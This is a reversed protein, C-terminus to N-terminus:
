ISKPLSSSGVKLPLTHSRQEWRSTKLHCTDHKKFVPGIPTFYVFLYIIGWLTKWKFLVRVNKKKKKWKVLFAMFLPFFGCMEDRVIRTLTKLYMSSADCVDNKPLKPDYYAENVSSLEHSSSTTPHGDSLLRPSSKGPILWVTWM